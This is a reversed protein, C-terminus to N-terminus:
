VVDVTTHGSLSRALAGLHQRTDGFTHEIATLRATLHGVSYEATMGIGGHLQIAEQGILRGSKGVIVKTRSVLESDGPDEALSMAAYQVTSRALELSVYLDAARHTLAQFSMLPVGFQKRTKLYDVSLDVAASMAGLAEACLAVTALNLAPALVSHDETLLTAPTADLAIGSGSVPPHEVLHLGQTSSVIVHTAAAAYPVPDKTGSLADGSATVSAASQWSRGPEALAPLVLAQGEGMADLLDGQGTAALLHGALLVDVYPSRVRARGLEEAVLMVEVPGASDDFPLAVLGMEVFQQWQEPDHVPLGITDPPTTRKLMDRVAERLAKQENDPTFDM